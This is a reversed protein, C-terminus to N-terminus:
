VPMHSKYPNNSIWTLDPCQSKFVPGISRCDVARGVSSYGSSKLIYKKSKKKNEFRLSSFCLINKDM